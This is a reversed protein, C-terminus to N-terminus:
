RPGLSDCSQWRGNGLDVACGNINGHYAPSATRRRSGHVYRRPARTHDYAHGAPPGYAYGPGYETQASAPGMTWAALLIASAIVWRVKM